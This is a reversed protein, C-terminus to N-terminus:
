VYCVCILHFRNYVVDVKTVNASRGFLYYFLSFKDVWDVLVGVLPKGM